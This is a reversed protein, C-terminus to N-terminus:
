NHIIKPPHFERLNYNSHKKTKFKTNFERGDRFILIPINKKLLPNIVEMDYGFIYFAAALCENSISNQM